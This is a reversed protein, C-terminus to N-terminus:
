IKTSLHQIMLIWKSYLGFLLLFYGIDFNELCVNSVLEGLLDLLTEM